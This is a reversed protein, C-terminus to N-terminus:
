FSFDTASLSSVGTLTLTAGYNFALVTDSGSTTVTANALVDAYSALHLSHVDIKDTGQSFGTVTTSGRGHSIDLVDVGSGATFLVKGSGLDIHTAGSGATITTTGSSASVHLTGTGGVVTDTGGQTMVWTDAGAATVTNSGTGLAISQTGTLGTTVTTNGNGAVFSLAAGNKLVVTQNATLAGQVAEIGSFAALSNLDFTGADTLKLVDFGTGGALSDGANFTSATAVIVDNGATGVSDAGTTLTLTAVTASVMGHNNGGGHGMGSKNNGQNGHRM